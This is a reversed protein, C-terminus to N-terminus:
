KVQQLRSVNQAAQEHWPTELPPDMSSDTNAVVNSSTSANPDYSNRESSDDVDAENNDSQLELENDSMEEDMRFNADDQDRESSTVKLSSIFM